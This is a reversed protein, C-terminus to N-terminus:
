RGGKTAVVCRTVFPRRAAPMTVKSFGAAKCMQAIEDASRAKGTGMALTYLAFYADGPRDPRAGGSMPESVILRGGEPLAAFCKALLREVTKDAHDYLVRVLSIADAGDPLPDSRFSGSRITTHASIGAQAFRAEAHPAVAPLDFLTLDLGPYVAGVEQLFAGTGGGVDMLHKVGKLSVAQLTDDAVLLQSQAMLDSYTEAVQPEVEGGFVYPWFGALEPTTEGRFFAVPDALDRYLVDHHRIMQQLGPVGALAAGRQTLGYRDGRKRKVLGLAVAAQMLVVMRPEPVGSAAALARLAMPGALLKTPIDFEVLAMLVQSHCFGALLDFLAEGECRVLRRTLPFRAAWKQFKRSAILQTLSPLRRRPMGSAPASMDAM